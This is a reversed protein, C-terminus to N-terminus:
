RIGLPDWVALGVYWGLAVGIADFAVDSLSNVLTERGFKMGVRGVLPSILFIEVPEWLVLILLGLWPGVVLTLLVGWVLHTLSWFDVLRANRAFRRSEEEM